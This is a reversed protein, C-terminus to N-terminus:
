TTYPSCVGYYDLEQCRTEGDCQTNSSCVRQCYSSGDDYTVCAASCEGAAIDNNVTGPPCGCDVHTTCEATCMGANACYGGRVADCDSEDTCSQGIVDPDGATGGSGLTGTGSSGGRGASSGGSGASSGAFGSVGGKGASSGGSGGGGRGAAGSGGGNGSVGSAGGQGGTDGPMLEDDEFPIKGESQCGLGLAWVAAIGLFLVPGKSM